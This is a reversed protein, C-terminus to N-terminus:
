LAARNSPLNHVWVDIEESRKIDDFCSGTSRFGLPNKCQYLFGRRGLKERYSKGVNQIFSEVKDKEVLTKLDLPIHEYDLTACDLLIANFRIDKWM